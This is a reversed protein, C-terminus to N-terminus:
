RVVGCIEKTKHHQTNLAFHDKVDLVLSSSSHIFTIDRM